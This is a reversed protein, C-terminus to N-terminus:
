FCARTGIRVYIGEFYMFLEVLSISVRGAIWGQAGCGTRVVKVQLSGEDAALCVFIGGAPYGVPPVTDIM